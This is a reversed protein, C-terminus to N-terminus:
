YPDALQGCRPIFVCGSVHCHKGAVATNLVFDIVAGYLTNLSFLAHKGPRLRPEPTLLRRLYATVLFSSSFLYFPEQQSSLSGSRKAM